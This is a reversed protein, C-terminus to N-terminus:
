LGVLVLFKPLFIMAGVCAAAFAVILVAGSAIDLGARVHESEKDTAARALKEVASNMLEMGLVAGICITLLAWEVPNVKFFFGCGVVAVTLLYHVAFSSQGISGEVVGRGAAAFKQIWSRKQPQYPANM